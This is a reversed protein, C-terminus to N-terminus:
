QITNCYEYKLLREAIKSIVTVTMANGAQSLIKNNPSDLTNIKEAIQKPFGQLLLAEYGNLKHLQKNKVYLIGHRGARLTPIKNKYLRLDSQRTDLITYDEELIENLSYKNINYKNNLYKQFTPNEVPLIDNNQDSLYQNLPPTKIEKIWNFPKIFLDKRIGVFYIRERMQPVGYNISNLLKYDVYYGSKQLLNYILKITAGKNHNLLGKVNELIFYSPKKRQIIDTIGFIIQGREDKLGDRKGVISFTQCPFGAILFDFNPIKDINISMLDGYNNNDNYFHRYTKDAYKDIECHGICELGNLELGLRGGGIGSCLDFFKM